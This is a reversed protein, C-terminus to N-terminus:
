IGMTEQTLEHCVELITKMDRHENNVVYTLCIQAGRTVLIKMEKHNQVNYQYVHYSLGEM